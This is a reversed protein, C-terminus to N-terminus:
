KTFFATASVSAAIEHHRRRGRKWEGGGTSLGVAAQGAGAGAAALEEIGFHHGPEAMEVHAGAHHHFAENGAHVARREVTEAHLERLMAGVHRAIRELADVPLHPGAAVA